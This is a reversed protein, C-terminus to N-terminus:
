KSLVLITQSFNDTTKNKVFSLDVNIKMNQNEAYFKIADALEQKNTIVKGLQYKVIIEGILGSKTGIVPKFSKASHGLIGSSAEPNKYPILICDCQDFLSKMMSNEVFRNDRIIQVPNNKHYISIEIFKKEFEPNGKGVFLLCIKKQISEPIYPIANLIDFSGKRGDMSGIHLFIKRENEIAYHQHIDFELLPQIDPIPDPLMKFVTTKFKINLADASEADNLLFVDLIKKNKSFLWTQFYKRWYRLKDKLHITEMRKFPGFLIGSITYRPKCIGLVFQFTNFWLLIVHDISLKKAYKNVLLYASISSGIWGRKDINALETKTLCCINLNLWQNAKEIILPFKDPFDPHLLFYYRNEDQNQSLYNILHHIYEPHHGTFCPDYILIRNM